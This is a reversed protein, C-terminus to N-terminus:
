AYNSAYSVNVSSTLLISYFFEKL